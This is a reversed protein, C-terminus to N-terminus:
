GQSSGAQDSPFLEYNGRLLRHYHNPMAEYPAPYAPLGRLERFRVNRRMRTLGLGLVVYGEALGTGEYKYMVDVSVAEGTFIKKHDIEVLILTDYVQFNRDNRRVEFPKRRSLVQHYYKTETKLVHRNM